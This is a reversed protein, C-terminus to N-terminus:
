KGQLHEFVFAAFVIIFFGIFLRVCDMLLSGVGLLLHEQVYSSLKMFWNLVIMMGISVTIYSSVRKRREKVALMKDM